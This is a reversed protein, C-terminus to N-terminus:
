YRQSGVGSKLQAPQSTPPVIVPRVQSALQLTRENAERPCHATLSSCGEDTEQSEKCWKEGKTEREHKKQIHGNEREKEQTDPKELSRTTLQFQQLKRDVFAALHRKLFPSVRIEPNEGVLCLSPM